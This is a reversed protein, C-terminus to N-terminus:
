VLERKSKSGENIVAAKAVYDGNVSTNEGPPETVIEIEVPRTKPENRWSQDVLPKPQDLCGAALAAAMVITVVLRVDRGKM